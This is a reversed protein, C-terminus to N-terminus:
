RARLQSQTPIAGAPHTPPPTAPEDIALLWSTAAEIAEAAATAGIAGRDVPQGSEREHLLGV